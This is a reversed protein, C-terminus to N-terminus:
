FRIKQRLVWGCVLMSNKEGTSLPLRLGPNVIETVDLIAEGVPFELLQAANYFVRMLQNDQNVLLCTLPQENLCYKFVESLLRDLQRDARAKTRSTAPIQNVIPQRTIQGVSM